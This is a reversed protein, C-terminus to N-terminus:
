LGVKEILRKGLPVPLICQQVFSIDGFKLLETECLHFWVSRKM